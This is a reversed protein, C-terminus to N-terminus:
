RHVHAGDCRDVRARAAGRQARCPNPWWPVVHTRSDAQRRGVHRPETLQSYEIVLADMYENVDGLARYEGFWGDRGGRSVRVSERMAVAELDDIVVRYPVGAADLAAIARPNVAAVIPQGAAAYETWVDDSLAHVLRIDADSRPQVEVASRTPGLLSAKPATPASALAMAAVVACGGAVVVRWPRHSWATWVVRVARSGNM